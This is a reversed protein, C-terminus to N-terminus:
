FPWKLLYISVLSDKNGWEITFVRIRHISSWINLIWARLWHKEENLLYVSLVLYTSGPGPLVSTSLVSLIAAVQVDSTVLKPPTHRKIFLPSSPYSVGRVVVPSVVAGM